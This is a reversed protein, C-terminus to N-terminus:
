EVTFNFTSQSSNEGGNDVGGSDIITIIVLTSGTSETAEIFLEGDSSLTAQGEVLLGNIPNVSIAIFSQSDEDSGGGTEINTAWGSITTSTGAAITVDSGPTLSPADNVANATVTFTDDVTQGNSTARVTIDATGNADAVYSLTLTNGEITDTILGANTNSLVEITISADDNDM